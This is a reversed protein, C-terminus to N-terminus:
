PSRKREELKEKKYYGQVNQKAGEQNKEKDEARPEQDGRKVRERRRRGQEGEGMARTKEAMNLGSSKGETSQVM